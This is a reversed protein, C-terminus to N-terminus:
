CAGLLETRIMENLVATKSDIKQLDSLFDRESLKDSLNQLTELIEQSTITKLVERRNKLLILKNQEKFKLVTLKDQAREIEVINFTNIDQIYCFYIEACKFVDVFSLGFLYGCIYEVKFENKNLIGLLKKNIAVNPKIYFSKDDVFSFKMYESEAVVEFYDAKYLNHFRTLSNIHLNVFDKQNSLFLFLNKLCLKVDIEIQKVDDKILVIKEDIAKISDSQKSIDEDLILIKRESDTKLESLLSILSQTYQINFSNLKNSSLDSNNEFITYVTHIKSLLDKLLDTKFFNVLVKLKNILKITESLTEQRLQDM